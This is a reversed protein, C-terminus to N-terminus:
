IQLPTTISQYKVYYVTDFQLLLLFNQVTKPNNIVHSKFADFNIADMFNNNDRLFYSDQIM